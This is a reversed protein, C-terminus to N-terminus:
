DHLDHADSVWASGADQERVKALRDVLGVAVLTAMLVVGPHPASGPILTTAAARELVQLGFGLGVFAVMARRVDRRLMLHLLGVCMFLLGYSARRGFEPSLNQRAVAGILLALLALVILLGVAASEVGGPRAAMSPTRWRRSGARWAVLLWLLAWGARLPPELGVEGLFLVAIAVLIAIVRATRRGPLFVGMALVAIPFMLRALVFFSLQTWSDLFHM